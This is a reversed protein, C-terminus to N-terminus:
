IGADGPSTHREDQPALSPEHFHRLKSSTGLVSVINRRGLGLQAPEFGIGVTVDDM